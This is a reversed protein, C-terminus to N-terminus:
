CAAGFAYGSCHKSYCERCTVRQLYSGVYACCTWSWKNGAPSTPCSSWQTSTCLTNYALNCCYAKYTLTSAGDGSSAEAPKQLGVAAATAGLATFAARRLFSRRPETSGSSRDIRADDSM